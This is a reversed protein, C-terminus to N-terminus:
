SVWSCPWQTPVRRGILIWQLWLMWPVNQTHQWQICLYKAHINLFPAWGWGLGLVNYYYFLSYFSVVLSHTKHIIRFLFSDMTIGCLHWLDRELCPRVVTWSHERSPIMINKFSRLLKCHCVVSCPSPTPTYNHMFPGTLNRTFIFYFIHEDDHDRTGRSNLNANKLPQLFRSWIFRALLLRFVNLPPWCPFLEQRSAAGIRWPRWFHNLPIQIRKFQSTYSGRYM